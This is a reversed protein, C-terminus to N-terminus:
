APVADLRFAAGALGVLFWLTFSTQVSGLNYETMGHMFFAALGLALGLGAGRALPTVSRRFRALGAVLLGGFFLAALAMGPLGYMAALQLPVDHLHGNEKDPAKANYWALAEPSRYRLFYGPERVVSGDPRTRDFSSLSDGVGLWPHDRVIGLGAQAMFIREDNSDNHMDAV